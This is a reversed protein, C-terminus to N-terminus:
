IESPIKLKTGFGMEDEFFSRFNHGDVQEAIQCLDTFLVYYTYESYFRIVIVIAWKVVM